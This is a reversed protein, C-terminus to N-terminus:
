FCFINSSKITFLVPNSTMNPFHFTRSIEKKWPSFFCCSNKMWCHMLTAFSMDLTGLVNSNKISNRRFNRYRHLEFVQVNKTWLLNASTKIFSNTTSLLVLRRPQNFYSLSEYVLVCGSNFSVSLTRMELSLIYM